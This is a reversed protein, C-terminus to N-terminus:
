SYINSASCPKQRKPNQRTRQNQWVKDNVPKRQHDVVQTTGRQLPSQTSKRARRKGSGEKNLKITKKSKPNKDEDDDTDSKNSSSHADDSAEEEEVTTNNQRRAVNQDM